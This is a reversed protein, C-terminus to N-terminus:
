GRDQGGPKLVLDLLPLRTNEGPNLWAARDQQGVLPRQPRGAPRKDEAIKGDIERQMWGAAPEGHQMGAVAFMLHHDYVELVGLALFDRRAKAYGLGKIPKTERRVASRQEGAAAFKTDDM